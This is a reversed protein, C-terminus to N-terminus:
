EVMSMMMAHSSPMVINIERPLFAGPVWCDIYKIFYFLFTPVIVLLIQMHITSNIIVRRPSLM